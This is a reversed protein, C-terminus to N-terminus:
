SYISEYEAGGAKDTIQNPFEICIKTGEGIKSEINITGDFARVLNRMNHLGLGNNSNQVKGIDFGIGDDCLKIVTNEKTIDMNVDIKKCKGHRIANSSSESIIRYISKKIIFPIYNEDGNIDLNFDIGNLQAINEGLGRIDSSLERKEQKKSSLHYITDRLEHLATNSSDKILLLQKLVDARTVKDFKKCLTYICCGISFLRQSVSDHIEDAIRNQEELIMMKNSVNELELRELVISLLKKLFDIVAIHHESIKEKDLFGVCLIGYYRSATKIRSLYLSYDGFAINLEDHTPLDKIMEQMMSESITKNSKVIFHNNHDDYKGQSFFCLDSKTLKYTYHIFTKIIDDVNNINSFEGIVQYLSMLESIANNLDDNLVQLKESQLKLKESQKSLIKAFSSLLQVVITMLIFALIFYYKDQVLLIINENNVLASSIVSSIIYLSLNFWTFPPPLLIAAMLIPNSAYWIFPSDLCGTPILLLAIGITEIFVIAKLVNLSDKYYSYLDNTFIAAAFLSIIVGIEFPISNINKTNLIYFLSTISLSLYRYIKIVSSENLRFDKIDLKRKLFAIPVLSAKIM